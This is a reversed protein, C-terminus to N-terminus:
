LELWGTSDSDDKFKAETKGIESEDHLEGTDGRSRIRKM